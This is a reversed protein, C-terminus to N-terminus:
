IHGSTKRTLGKARGQLYLAFYSTGLTKGCSVRLCASCISYTDTNVVRPRRPRDFKWFRLRFNQLQLDPHVLPPWNRQVVVTNPLGGIKRMFIVSVVARTVTTITGGEGSLFPLGSLNLLKGLPAPCPLQRGKWMHCYYTPGM